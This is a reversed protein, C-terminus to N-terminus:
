RTASRGHQRPEEVDEHGQRGDHLRPHPDRRLARPRPHRLKRAALVPVLRSAPRQRRRLHRGAVVPRALARQELVYAHSTGCDFWVDLIDTVPEWEAADYDDGLFSHATEPTWADIGQAKVAAVIAANVAEDVLYEGTTRNVFLTIPVGWARQRSLVWDPRGAVM